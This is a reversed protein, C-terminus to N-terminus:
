SMKQRPPVWPRAPIERVTYSSISRPIMTEHTTPREPRYMDLHDAIKQKIFSVAEAHRVFGEALKRDLEAGQKAMAGDMRMALKQDLDPGLTEMAKAMSAFKRDNEAFRSNMETRLSRIESLINEIDKKTVQPDDM